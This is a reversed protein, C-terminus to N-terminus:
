VIAEENQEKWHRTRWIGILGLVILPVTCIAMFVVLWMIVGLEKKKFDIDPWHNCAVRFCYLGGSDFYILAFRRNVCFGL